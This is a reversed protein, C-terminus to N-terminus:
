FVKKMEYQEVFPWFGHRNFLEMSRKAGKEINVVNYEKFKKDTCLKELLLSPLSSDWADEAFGIQTVRGRNGGILLGYGIILDGKYACICTLEEPIALMAESRNQWSPRWEMSPLRKIISESPVCEKLVIGEPLRLPEFTLTDSRLCLFRRTVSFGLALYINYAKENETLVELFYERVGLSSLHKNSAASLEKSIGQSRYEPIIGTGSDYATLVGDLTRLGNMWFGVLTDGDFAGLSHKFSVGNRRLFLGMADVTLTIDVQYDSFAKVWAAHLTDMSINVLNKIQISTM